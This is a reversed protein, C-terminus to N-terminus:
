HCLSVDVSCSYKSQELAERAGDNWMFAKEGDIYEYKKKLKKADFPTEAPDAPRKGRGGKGHGKGGKKTTEPLKRKKYPTPLAKIVKQVVPMNGMAEGVDGREDHPGYELRENKWFALPKCRPRRSRRVGEEPSQKYDSIPVAEYDRPGAPYGAPSDMIRVRKKTKRSKTSKAPTETDTSEGPEVDKLTAKRKQENKRKNKMEKEQRIREDRVSDPTEPDHVMNFGEGEKNDEESDDLNNLMEASSTAAAHPLSQEKETPSDAADEKNEEVETEKPLGVTEQSRSLNDEEENQIQEMDDADAMQFGEGEKDDGDDDDDDDFGTPFGDDMNQSNDHANPAPQIPPPPPPVLEDNEEEENDGEGLPIEPRAHSPKKNSEEDQQAEQRATVVEETSTTTVAAEGRNGKETEQTVLPSDKQTMYPSNSVTAPTPPATSVMSIDTHNPNFKGIVVNMIARSPDERRSSMNNEAGWFNMNPQRPTKPTKKKTTQPPVQLPLTEGAAKDPEPSRSGQWFGELEENKTYEPAVVGSRKGKMEDKMANAKPATTSRLTRKSPQSQGDM